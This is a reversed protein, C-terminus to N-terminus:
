SRRRGIALEYLRRHRAAVKSWAFHSAREPGGAELVRRKGGDNLLDVVLDAFSDDPAIVGYAGGSLVHRAGGNPSSVIATGSAMAELYPIGFGEYTSPYALVWARRYLSALDEDDPYHFFRVSPHSPCKDSVFWLEAEPVRPLISGVFQEFMWKGRKRGDWTGIFLVSPATSKPGPRFRELDIGNDVLEEVGYIAATEEGVAATVTALRASLREMPYFAYQTVRRKLSTAHRAERLASGHLTRVTPASRRVFFWDDGHLHIVDQRGFRVLNLLLPLVLWRGLLWQRLWAARPFLRRHEYLGDAPAPTLSFVTVQDEGTRALENALRHVAVEVGGLKRDPEPLTTHFLAIRM